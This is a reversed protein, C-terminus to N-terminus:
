STGNMVPQFILNIPSARNAQEADVLGNTVPQFFVSFVPQCTLGQKGTQRWSTGNMVPQSILNFPSAKNAQAADALTM